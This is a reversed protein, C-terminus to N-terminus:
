IVHKDDSSLFISSGDDTSSVTSSSTSSIRSLPPSHCIMNASSHRFRHSHHHTINSFLLETDPAKAAEKAQCTTSCFSLSDDLLRKECYLCINLEM